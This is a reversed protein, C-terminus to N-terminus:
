LNPTVTYSLLLQEAYSIIVVTESMDNYNESQHTRLHRRLRIRFSLGRVEPPVYMILTKCTHTTHRTLRATCDNEDICIERTNNCQWM